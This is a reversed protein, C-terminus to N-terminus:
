KRLIETALSDENNQTESAQLREKLCEIYVEAEDFLTHTDIDEDKEGENSYEDDM